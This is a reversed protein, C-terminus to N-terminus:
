LWKKRGLYVEYTRGKGMGYQESLCIGLSRHYGEILSPAALPNRGTVMILPPLKGGRSVYEKIGEIKEVFGADVRKIEEEHAVFHRAVEGVSHLRGSQNLVRILGEKGEPKFWWKVKALEGPSMNVVRWVDFERLVGAVRKSDPHSHFGFYTREVEPLAIETM